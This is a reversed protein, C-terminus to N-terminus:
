KSIEKLVIPIQDIMDSSLMGRDSFTDKLKLGVISHIYVGICAADFSDIGQSIFGAIMGALVDGTGATSLLPNESNNLFAENINKAIITKSNKLVITCKWEESKEKVIKISDDIDFDEGLLARFEGVHPTIVTNLPLYEWWNPILSLHTLGDADIILKIDKDKLYKILFETLRVASDTTDLGPGFLITKYKAIKKDLLVRYEYINRSDELNFYTAEHFSSAYISTLYKDSVISVVGVGTRYASKGALISSGPYQFSGTILLLRGFDDKHSSPDRKPILTQVLNKDLYDINM